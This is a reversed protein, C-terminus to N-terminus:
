RGLENALDFSSKLFELFRRVPEFEEHLTFDHWCVLQTGEQLFGVLQSRDQDGADLLRFAVGSEDKM